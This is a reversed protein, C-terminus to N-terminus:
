VGGGVGMVQSSQFPQADRQEMTWPLCSHIPPGEQALRRDKSDRCNCCSASASYSALIFPRSASTFSDTLVQRLAQKGESASSLSSLGQPTELSSHPGSGSLALSSVWSLKRQYGWGFPINQLSM